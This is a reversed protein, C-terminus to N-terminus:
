LTGEEILTKHGKRPSSSGIAGGCKAATPGIIGPGCRRSGALKALALVAVKVEKFQLKLGRWLYGVERNRDWLLEM